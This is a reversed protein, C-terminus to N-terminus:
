VGAAMLAARVKEPSADDPLEALVTDLANRTTPSAHAQVQQSREYGGLDTKQKEESAPNSEPEDGEGAARFGAALRANETLWSEVAKNDGLNIDDKAIWKALEPEYGKDKLTDALSRQAIRAEAKQRGTREAKL